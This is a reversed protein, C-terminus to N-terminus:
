RNKRWKAWTLHSICDIVNIDHQNMIMCNCWWTIMKKYTSQTNFEQEKLKTESLPSAFTRMIFFMKALMFVLEFHYHSIILADYESCLTIKDPHINLADWIISATKWIILSLLGSMVSLADPIRANTSRCNCTSWFSETSSWDEELTIVSVSYNKPVTWWLNMIGWLGNPSGEL